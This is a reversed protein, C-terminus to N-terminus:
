QKRAREPAGPGPTIDIEAPEAVAERFNRVAQRFGRATERVRSFGTIAVVIVLIVLLDGM